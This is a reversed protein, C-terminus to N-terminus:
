LEPLAGPQVYAGLYACLAVAAAMLLAVAQHARISFDFVYAFLAPLQMELLVGLALGLWVRVLPSKGPLLFRVMMVGGCLFLLSFWVAPIQVSLLLGLAGGLCAQVGKRKGPLLLRAALVGGCVFLVAIAISAM